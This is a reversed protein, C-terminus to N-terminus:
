RGGSGSDERASFGERDKERRVRPPLVPLPAPPSVVVVVVLVAFLAMRQSAMPDDNSVGLEPVSAALGCM